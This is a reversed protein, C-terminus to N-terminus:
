KVAKWLIGKVSACTPGGDKATGNFSTELIKQPSAILDLAQERTISMLSIKARRDCKVYAQSARVGSNVYVFRQDKPGQAYKGLFNPVDDSVDVTIPFEFVFGQKSVKIPALLEDKGRQVQMAIGPPPTNVRIRLSIEHKSM